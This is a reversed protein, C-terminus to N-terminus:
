ASLTGVVPYKSNYKDQWEGAQMLEAPTLDDIAGNVDTPLLSSKALGRTADTGAFLGYSAGPGYFGPASTMDYVKGLLAIYIHADPNQPSVKGNFPALTQRTFLRPPAASQLTANPAVPQDFVSVPACCWCLGVVMGFLAAGLVVGGLLNLLWPDM